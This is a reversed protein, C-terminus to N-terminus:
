EYRLAEVPNALAAKVAQFSVTLLAVGLAFIGSLVFPWITMDLRYAFDQLWQQMAFYAIPWALLNALVILIVFENTLLRVISFISAGLVKRIGIEKTRQEAAFAALGFLGLCAIFIALFAAHGVVRSVRQERRYQAATTEDLFSLELPWEPALKKWAKELGALTASFNETQIRLAIYTRNFVPRCTMLMPKIPLHLSQFHFDKVVGVVRGSFIPDPRDPRYISLRKGVAHDRWGLAAAATENILLAETPDTSFEPSFDRGAILELGFTEAFDHEVWDAAMELRADVAMGEGNVPAIGFSHGSGPIASAGTAQMVGPVAKLEQRFLEFNMREERQPSRIFVIQDKEYGLPRNQMYDLQRHMVAIGILFFVSVAFQGVVLLQRLRPAGGKAGGWIGKLVKVPQFASLYFAPYCGAALGVMLALAALLAAMTGFDSGFFSLSKGTLDNFLPLAFEVLALALMVAFLSLLTAEGLFQQILQGRQAGMAKRVGVERVRDASRATSLNMFNVCAVLLLLLAIGSYFWVETMSGNVGIEGDYQSHLHIDALAQLSLATEKKLPDPYARAVFGGFRNEVAAAASKDSLLLYTPIFNFEWDASMSEVFAQQSALTALFDFHFHSHSPLAKVVGTIEFEQSGEFTFTLVRGLPNEAGFYKQAMAETIVMGRPNQLATEPDGLAMELDFVKFIAPDTFFLNAEQHKRDEYRMVGSWGRGLRVTQVVEPFENKIADALKLPSAVTTAAVNAMQRQTVVRYIRAANRHFRDYSFEHRVMLLMLLCCAVGTALGAITIFAYGKHKLLHRLAIKLFNIFM